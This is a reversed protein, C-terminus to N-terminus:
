FSLGKVASLLGGLQSPLAKEAANSAIANGGLKDVNNLAGSILGPITSDKGLMSSGVNMLQLGSKLGAAKSVLNGGGLLNSVRNAGLLIRVTNIIKELPGKKVMGQSALPILKKLNSAQGLLQTKFDGGNTNAENEIGKSLNTLASSLGKSDKKEHMSLVSNLLDETNQSFSIFPFLLLLLTIIRKMQM